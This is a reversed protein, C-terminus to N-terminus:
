GSATAKVGDIFFRILRNAREQSGPSGVSLSFGSLAGALDDVTVDTRFLGADVGADLFEELATYVKAHSLAVAEHDTSVM